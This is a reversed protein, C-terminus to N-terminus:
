KIITKFGTYVSFLERDIERGTQIVDKVWAKLTSHHVGQTEDWEISNENLLKRVRDVDKENDMRYSVTINVRVIDGYGHDQLWEYASPDTIKGTYFPKIELKHGDLLTVGKAGIEHMLEPIERESIQDRAQERQKLVQQLGEIDNQLAVMQRALATLRSLSEEKPLSIDEKAEEDLFSM